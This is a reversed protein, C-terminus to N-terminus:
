SKDPQQPEAADGSFLGQLGRSLINTIKPRALARFPLPRCVEMAAIGVRATLAGNIVGEGFRRSLRSLVGGGAVSHILDDSAAVAGTAVLHEMVSRMLRLSGFLGSRGGYLGAIRRVMRVNAVLAALVDAFALPVIATVAAVQRAASEIERRAAMDLAGLYEREALALLTEADLVGEAAEDHRRANWALDARGRYLAVVARSVARAAGLDDDALAREAADRVHDLRALRAFALGERAVILLATVAVAIMLGTAIWGLLPHAALLGAAYNWAALSVMFTVLSLASALFWRGIRSGRRGAARILGRMAQGDPPAEDPLASAEAPALATEPPLEILVPGRRENVPEM